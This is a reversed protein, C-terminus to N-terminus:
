SLTIPLNNIQIMQANIYAANPLIYVKGIDATTFGVAVADKGIIFGKHFIPNAGDFTFFATHFITTYAPCYFKGNYLTAPIQFVYTNSTSNRQFQGDIWLVYHNDVRFRLDTAASGYKAFGSLYAPQSTDGVERWATASLHTTLSSSVSAVAAAQNYYTGEQGDLKDADLGSGAGDNGTHWLYETFPGSGGTWEVRFDNANRSSLLLSQQYSGVRTEVLGPTTEYARILQKNGGLVYQGLFQLTDMILFSTVRGGVQLDNNIICHQGINADTTTTLVGTEVATTAIMTGSCTFNRVQFSANTSDLDKTADLVLAKSAYANGPTIGSLVQIEALSVATDSLLQSTKGSITDTKWYPVNGATLQVDNIGGVNANSVNGFIPTDLKLSFLDVKPSHLNETPITQHTIIPM